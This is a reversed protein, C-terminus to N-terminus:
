LIYRVMEVRPELSLMMLFPEPSVAPSDMILQASLSIANNFEAMKVFEIIHRDVIQFIADYVLTLTVIKLFIKAL